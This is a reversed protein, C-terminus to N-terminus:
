FYLLQLQDGLAAHQDVGVDQRRFLHVLFPFEPSFRYRPSIQCPTPM